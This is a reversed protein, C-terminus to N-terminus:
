ASDGTILVSMIIVLVYRKMPQLTLVKGGVKRPMTYIAISSKPVPATEDQLMGPFEQLLKMKPNLETAEESEHQVLSNSRSINHPLSRKTHFNRANTSTFLKNVCM